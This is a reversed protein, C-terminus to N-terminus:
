RPQVQVMRLAYVQPDLLLCPEVTDPLNQLIGEVPAADNCTTHADRYFPTAEPPREAM